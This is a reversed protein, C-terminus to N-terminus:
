FKNQYMRGDMGLITRLAVKDKCTIYAEDITDEKEHKFYVGLGNRRLCRGDIKKVKIKYRYLYL